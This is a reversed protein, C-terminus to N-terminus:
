GKKYYQYHLFEQIKTDGSILKNLTDILMRIIKFFIKNM